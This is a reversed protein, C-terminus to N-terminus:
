GTQAPPTMRRVKRGSFGPIFFVVPSERAADPSLILVPIGGVTLINVLLTM